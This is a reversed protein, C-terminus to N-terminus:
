RRQPIFNSKWYKTTKIIYYWISLLQHKIFRIWVTNNFGHSSFLYIYIFTHTHVYVCLSYRKLFHQIEKLFPIVVRQSRFTFMTMQCYIVKLYNLKRIISICCLNYIWFVYNCIHTRHFLPTSNFYARLRLMNLISM